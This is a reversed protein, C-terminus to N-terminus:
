DYEAGVLLGTNIVSGRGDQLFDASFFADAILFINQYLQFEYGLGFSVRHASADLLQARNAPIPAPTPRFSYGARLKLEDWITYELGVRPVFIDSFQPDEIPIRFDGVPLINHSTEVLLFPGPYKSWLYYTIDATLLWKELIVYSSGFAIQHPSYSLFGQVILSHVPSDKFSLNSKINMSGFIASRYVLSLRWHDLPIATVGAILGLIPSIQAPLQAVLGPDRFPDYSIDTELNVGNSLSMGVGLTLQKIPAYGAGMMMSFAKLDGAYMIFTPTVNLTGTKFQIPGLSFNSYVGIGVQNLPKLCFGLNLAQYNGLQEAKPDPDNLGTHIFDYGVSLRSGRCLALLSPNYFTASDDEAISLGAGGLAKNRAGAGFTDEMPGAMLPFVTLLLVAYYVDIRM